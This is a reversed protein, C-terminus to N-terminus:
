MWSIQAVEFTVESCLTFTVEYEKIWVLPDHHDFHLTTIDPTVSPLPSLSVSATAFHFSDIRLLLGAVCDMANTRLDLGPNWLCCRKEEAM